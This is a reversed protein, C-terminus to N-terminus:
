PVRIALPVSVGVFWMETAQMRKVTGASFQVKCIPNPPALTIGDLLFSTGKLQRVEILHVNVQCPDRLLGREDESAGPAM